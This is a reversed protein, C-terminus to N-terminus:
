YFTEGALPRPYSFTFWDGRGNRHSLTLTLAIENDAPPRLSMFCKTTLV